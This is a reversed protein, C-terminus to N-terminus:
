FLTTSTLPGRSKSMPSSRNLHIVLLMPEGVSLSIPVPRWVRIRRLPILRGRQSPRRRSRHRDALLIPSLATARRNPDIQILNSGQTRPTVHQEIELWAM